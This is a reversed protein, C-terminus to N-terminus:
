FGLLAAPYEDHFGRHDMWHQGGKPDSFAENWARIYGGVPNFRGALISAAMLGRVRSQENGTLRYDAVASHLWM